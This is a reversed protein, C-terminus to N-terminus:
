ILIDLIKGSDQDESPVATPDKAEEGEPAPTKPRKEERKKPPGDQRIGKAKPDRLKETPFLRDLESVIGLGDKM